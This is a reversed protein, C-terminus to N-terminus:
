LLEASLFSKCKNKRRTEIGRDAAMDQCSGSKEPNRGTKRRFRAGREQESFGMDDEYQGGMPGSHPGQARAAIGPLLLAMALIAMRVTKM